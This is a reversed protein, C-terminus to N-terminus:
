RQRIYDIEILGGGEGVFAVAPKGAVELLSTLAGAGPQANALSLIPGWASGDADSAVAYYLGYYDNHTNTYSIAPLGNIVELSTNWGPQGLADVTVPLGWAAGDPDLSRVYQLHFDYDHFCIAPNGNVVAMSNFLGNNNIVCAAVEPGWLAGQADLARIFGLFDDTTDPNNVTFAIAPNGNVVVMSNMQGWEYSIPPESSLLTQPSGWVSGDADTARCYMLNKDAGDFYSVAPNGAVVILCNHWATEFPEITVAPGWAAGNPDTARRYLLAGLAGQNVVAPHGNVVALSNYGGGQSDVTVPASWASGISDTARSYILSTTSNQTFTIAPNGNVVAMSPAFTESVGPAPGPEAIDWDNDEFVRLSDVRAAGGNTVVVSIYSNGLPSINRAPDLPVTASTIYPGSFSWKQNTYDAVGVYASAAVITSLLVQVNAVPFGPNYRYIAYENSNAASTLDLSNGNDVAGTSRQETDKGLVTYGGLASADRDQPFPVGFGM